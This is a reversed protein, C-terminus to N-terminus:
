RNAWDDESVYWGPGGIGGPKLLGARLLELARRVGGGDEPWIRKSPQERTIGPEHTGWSATEEEQERNGTTGKWTSVVHTWDLASVDSTTAPGNGIIKITPELRGLSRTELATIARLEGDTTLWLHAYEVEEYWGGPVHNM